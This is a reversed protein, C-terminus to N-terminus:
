TFHFLGEQTDATLLNHKPRDCGHALVVHALHASFEEASKQQADGVEQPLRHWHEVVRLLNKQM